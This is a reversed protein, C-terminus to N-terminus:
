RVWIVHAAGSNPYYLWAGDYSRSMWAAGDGGCLTLGENVVNNSESFDWGSGLAGHTKCDNSAGMPQNVQGMGSDTYAADGGCWYYGNADNWLLYGDEGFEIRLESEDIWESTYTNSGDSYAALRLEAFPYSNLDLWAQVATAMPSSTTAPDVALLDTSVFDAGFEGIYTGENVSNIILAASVGENTMDCWIELPDEGSDVGDPDILYLGDDVGAGSDYIAKCTQGLPCVDNTDPYADPDNDNCDGDVTSTDPPQECSETGEGVGFGDMDADTYYTMADSAWVDVEDDCDNDQGDCVEENGPYNNPDDDDCDESAPSGDMDADPDGDGDGTMDGDGDGPPEGDGDGPPEGDGDGPPEGDGDGPPEGDSSTDNETDVQTDQTASDGADNSDDTGSDEACGVSTLGFALLVSSLSFHSKKM